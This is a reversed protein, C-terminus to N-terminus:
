NKKKEKLETSSLSIELQNKIIWTINHEAYSSSFFIVFMKKKLPHPIQVTISYSMIKRTYIKYFVEMKSFTYWYKMRKYYIRNYYLKLFFFGHTHAEKKM